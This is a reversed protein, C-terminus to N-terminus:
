SVARLSSSSSIETASPTGSAVASSRISKASMGGGPVTRAGRLGRRRAAIGPPGCAAPGRRRGAASSSRSSNPSPRPSARSRSAGRSSSSAGSSGRSASASSPTSATSGSGSVASGSRLFALDRFFASPASPKPDVRLFLSVAAAFGFFVPVRAFVSPSLGFLAREEREFFFLSSAFSASSDHDAHHRELGEEGLVDSRDTRQEVLGISQAGFGGARQGKWFLCLSLLWRAGVVGFEEEQLGLRDLEDGVVLQEIQHLALEVHGLARETRR